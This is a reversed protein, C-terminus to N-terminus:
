GRLLVGGNQFDFDPLFTVSNSCYRSNAMSPILIPTNKMLGVGADPKMVYTDFPNDNNIQKATLEAKYDSCRTIGVSLSRVCNRTVPRSLGARILKSCNALLSM